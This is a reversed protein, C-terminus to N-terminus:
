LKMSHEFLMFCSCFLWAVMIVGLNFSFQSLCSFHKCERPTRCGVTVLSSSSGLFTQVSLKYLEQIVNVAKLKISGADMFYFVCVVTEFHISRM